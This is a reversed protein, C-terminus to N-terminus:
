FQSNLVKVKGGVNSNINIILKAKAAVNFNYKIIAVNNLEGLM